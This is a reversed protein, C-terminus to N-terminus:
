DLRDVKRYEGAPLDDTVLRKLGMFVLVFVMFIFFAARWPYTVVYHELSAMKHNLYRALREVANESHKYPLRGAAADEIAAFLSASTTLKIRSGNPDADYYVLNKHDTIVVRVDDLAGAGDGQVIGYMSKMWEKWKEGDMWTFVVERGSALGSGETRVRWKKGLERVRTGVKDKDHEGVAAIVVLPAQPANMVTQFTDQTLELATPLRHTLLWTSLTSPTSIREHHISSPTTPDHDKLALLAWTSTQPVSFRTLLSTDSSTILLPAGLLPTAARQVTDVISKDSESHLLLYVVENEKIINDLDETKITQIGANSAKEAFSKLQDLKRGSNYESRLGGATLYILTPYGQVNNAKCLASHDDCNVEAVTLKNQMHRALQKWIPALKKCHGCWPAFFKVFMPGKALNAAFSDGTLNLVDGSPNAVPLPEIDATPPPPSVADVHRKIFTHLSDLNRDGKFNEVREGNNYFRLSPYAKVDNENCLDGHTICNVQALKVTPHEKESEQVLQDWTPAFERCHGCYPSFYEIFWLGTSISSKFTDPSLETSHVPLAKSALALSTIFLSIPLERFAALLHM